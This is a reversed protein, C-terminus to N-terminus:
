FWDELQIDPIRIFETTNHTVLINNNSLATGAIMIDYPGIPTGKKELNARIIAASKAEKTGFPTIPIIDALNQLQQSRKEPSESKEIGVYLEYLVISPIAIETPPTELLRAAVNEQGKFFYILTNTDLLYM